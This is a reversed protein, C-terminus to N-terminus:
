AYPLRGLASYRENLADLRDMEAADISFDFVDCNEQLHAGQNAKPLPVVSHQLNWRILVQAPTKGYKTALEVLPEETLRTGRTLPSYAQIVIHKRLAFDRMAESHGFPSWEIQNVAPTEGSDAILAEIQEVRYNSVGIDRALGDRKAKLLGQWLEEGAGQRPPRHILMLDAYDLQLERLNRRTAEYADETEEVKTVLYIDARRLGSRAIGEAIAPQTGYDGSTDIMRYGLALAAVITEATDHSLQWTGLGMLPMSHGSRLDIGNQSTM